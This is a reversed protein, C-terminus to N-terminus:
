LCTPPGSGPFTLSCLFSNSRPPPEPFGSESPVPFFPCTLFSAPFCSHPLPLSPLCSAPPLRPPFFLSTVNPQFILPPYPRALPQHIQHLPPGQPVQSFASEFALFLSLHVKLLPVWSVGVRRPVLVKREMLFIKNQCLWRFILWSTEPPPSCGTGPPLCASSQSGRQGPVHVNLM